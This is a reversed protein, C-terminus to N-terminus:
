RDRSTLTDTSKKKFKIYYLHIWIDDSFNSWSKIKELMHSNTRSKFQPWTVSWGSVITGVAPGHSPERQPRTSRVSLCAPQLPRRGATLLTPHQHLTLFLLFACIKIWKYIKILFRILRSSYVRLPFFSNDTFLKLKSDRRGNLEVESRLEEPNCGRPRSVTMNWEDSKLLTNWGQQCPRRRLSFGGTADVCDIM